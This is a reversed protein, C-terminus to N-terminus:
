DLQYVRILLENSLCVVDQRNNGGPVSDACGLPEGFCCSSMDSVRLLFREEVNVKIGDTGISCSRQFEEQLVVRHHSEKVTPYTLLVGYLSTEHGLATSLDDSAGWFEFWITAPGFGADDDGTRVTEIVSWDAARM